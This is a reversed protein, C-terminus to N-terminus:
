PHERIMLNPAFERFGFKGWFAQKDTWVLSNGGKLDIESLAAKVLVAGYGKGQCSPDVNLWFLEYSDWDMYSQAYGAFGLVEPDALVVIKVLPNQLYGKLEEIGRDLTTGTYNSRLIAALRDHDELGAQRLLVTM